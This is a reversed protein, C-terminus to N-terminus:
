GIVRLLAKVGNAGAQAATVAKITIVYKSTGGTSTIQHNKEIIPSGDATEFVPEYAKNVDTVTWEVDQTTGSVPVTILQPTDSLWTDIAPKNKIFDVQTNDTQGFNSQIQGGLYPLISQYFSQLDSKTVMKNNSM